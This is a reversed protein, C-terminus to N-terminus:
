SEPDKDSPGVHLAVDKTSYTGGYAKASAVLVGGQRLADQFENESLPCAWCGNPGPVQGTELARKVM